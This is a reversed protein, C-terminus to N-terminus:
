KYRFLWQEVADLNQIAVQQARPDNVIINVDINM